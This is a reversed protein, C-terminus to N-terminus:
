SYTQLHTLRFRQLIRGIGFNPLPSYLLTSLGQEQQQFIRCFVPFVDGLGLPSAPKRRDTLRLCHAS